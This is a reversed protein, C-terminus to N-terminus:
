RGDPFREPFGHQEDRNGGSAESWTLNRPRIMQSFPKVGAREALNKEGLEWHMAEAEEISCGLEQAITAWMDEKNRCSCM